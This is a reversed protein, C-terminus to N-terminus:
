KAKQVQVIQVSTSKANKVADVTSAVKISLEILGAALGIKAKRNTIAIGSAVIAAINAFFFLAAKNWDGNIAQGLGPIFFSGVGVGVKKGNSAEVEYRREEVDGNKRTEILVPGNGMFRPVIGCNSANIAQINM